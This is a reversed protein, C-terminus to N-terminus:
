STLRRPITDALGALAIDYHMLSDWRSTQFAVLQGDPSFAPLGDDGWAPLFPASARGRHHVFLDITHDGEVSESTVLTETSPAYSASFGNGSVLRISYATWPKPILTDQPSWGTRRVDVTEFRVQNTSDLYAIALVADPPPSAARGTIALVTVATAALLGFVAAARRAPSVLGFRWLLPAGRRLEAVEAPSAAAGLLDAAIASVSRRDGLAHRHAGFARFLDVRANADDSHRLLQAARRVRSEELPPAALTRGLRGSARIVADAAALRLVEEAIEDHSMRWGDAEKVVFGRSELSAMGERVEESSRESSTVLTAQGLASGGTALLTLLWLDARDLDALRTRLVDGQQLETSLADPLATSWSGDIRRLLEREELHRLMGIALLPSGRSARWLESSFTTAWPEAPLSAIGLVLEEVQAATLPDLAVHRTASTSVLPARRAEPRGATVLLVRSEGLGDIAAALLTSSPDDWWHLDDVLIAVPHEFSVATMLERVALSRARMLDERSSRRAPRDFWTSLSPNLDVLTAASEPAIAQRGPLSALAAALDGAVAFEVDRTGLSGGLTVVRGRMARIRTMLDRLLRTKGLGARATVHIRAAKGGKTEEWAHLLTAFVEERGVLTSDPADTSTASPTAASSRVTRLSARTAPEMEIGDRAALQLLAEAEAKASLLDDASVCAEILLRWGGEHNVDQDRLRRALAIADRAHGTSLQGTVVAEASHRFVELLRRRELSAWEEFGAGGPAAFSPVFPGAYLEVVRAHEGARSAGLFDDRDVTVADSLLLTDSESAVLDQGTKKKVYWVTQRLAHKAADPELDSWLLSVLSSRSATRNPAASLYILLALPKGVALSAASSGRDPTLNATGLTTLKM